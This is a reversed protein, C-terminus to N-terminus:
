AKKILESQEFFTEIVAVTREVIMRIEDETSNYPPALLVHDGKRGDATGSGPYISISYPEKMGLEHIRMAIQLDPDFPEKTDRDQVFEIGWFLGMGRIDGVYQLDQLKAKLLTELLAGRVAVQDLLGEEKIIEQVTYATACAVPHGQYTQGHSFAGSGKFLVQEVKPGIMMAAVPAYGGGLGKGLTQLDPVVDILPSQWMHLYGSRGTGSMIEDLILLASYKDCVKKMARFYGPVAPVCGLAAGVMPEAVFACVTDPGVRQFEDDLEQALREVYQEESEGNLMGRYAYCPSVHSVEATLLPEYIKRRAIHGGLGLAGLTTGHYSQRRAIFRKRKTSPGELEVFYQRAMKIASEIAESGSSVVFVKSMKHGTGDILIRCLNEVADTSYFLSHCYTVSDIQEVMATKVRVNNHGLCAVAAGGSADVVRQGNELHLYLGDAKLVKLPQDHLSRHLVASLIQKKTVGNPQGEPIAM